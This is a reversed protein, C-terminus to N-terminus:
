IAGWWVQLFGSCVTDATDWTTWTTESLATIYSLRRASGTVSQLTNKEYPESSLTIFRWRQVPSAVSVPFQMVTAGTKLLTEFLSEIRTEYRDPTFLRELGAAARSVASHARRSSRISWTNVEAHQDIASDATHPTHKHNHLLAWTWRKWSKGCNNMSNNLVAMEAGTHTHTNAM